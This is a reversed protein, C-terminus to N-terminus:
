PTDTNSVFAIKRSDPSWSPTNMTGQGGYVYAIVKPAGGTAPMLRIYIHKYFPHDSPSVEKPFSIFVLWKGDPSVHAFWNNYEDDTLQEQDSGDPKMRWIQMRGSRQSNFYIYKGDPSYEPGDDLGPATTLRKETGGDSPITYVDFNGNREACYTLTKGNPSWGHLYSPGLPTIKKPTGGTVPVTYIVSQGHNEAAGNSIGLMRGDFSLVHDNNNNKAFDTPIVTAHRSALDFHYLLGDCNYILARGDKTWNPAQLSKPSRAIVERHGSQVDMIELNSGIYNRYPVYDDAVPVVLRVNSFVAKESVSNNHSCIFLGAYVESGLDIGSVEQTVFTHGYRAVSMIFRSGKKELQIVDASDLEFTKERTSDGKAQRFQLSTLGDGHVVASVHASTSDLGSRIMIGIKRHAETGKGVFSVQACLMFDKKMRKYLFCGADSTFWMNTGSGQLTYIQTNEDYDARGPIGTQGIDAYADFEGTAKQQALSFLPLIAFALLLLVKPLGQASYSM